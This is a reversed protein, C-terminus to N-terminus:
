EGYSLCLTHYDTRVEFSMSTSITDILNTTLSTPKSRLTSGSETKLVEVKSLNDLNIAAIISERMKLLSRGTLKQM